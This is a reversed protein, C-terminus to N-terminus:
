PLNSPIILLFSFLSFKEWLQKSQVASTLLAIGKKSRHPNKGFRYVHLACDTCPCLRVELASNCCCDLCKLRISRLPTPM